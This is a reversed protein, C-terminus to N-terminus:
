LNDWPNGTDTKPAPATPVSWPSSSKPSKQQGARLRSRQLITKVNRSLADPEPESGYDKEPEDPGDVGEPRLAGRELAIRHALDDTHVTGFHADKDEDAVLAPPVGYHLLCLDLNNRWEEIGVANWYAVFFAKTQGNTYGRQIAEHHIEDLAAVRMPEMNPVTLVHVEPRVDKFADLGRMFDNEPTTPETFYTQVPEVAVTSQQNNPPIQVPTPTPVPIAPPAVVPIPALRPPQTVVVAPAPVSVPTPMTDMYRERVWTPLLAVATDYQQAPCQALSERWWPIKWGEPEQSFKQIDAKFQAFSYDKGHVEDMYKKRETYEKWDKENLVTKMGYYAHIEPPSMGKINKEIFELASMHEQRLKKGQDREYDAISQFLRTDVAGRIHLPVQELGALLADPKKSVAWYLDSAVLQALLEDESRAIPPSSSVRAVRKALVGPNFTRGMARSLEELPAVFADVDAVLHAFPQVADAYRVKPKPTPAGLMLPMSLNWVSRIEKPTPKYVPAEAPADRVETLPATPKWARAIYEGLVHVKATDSFQVLAQVSKAAHVFVKPEVYTIITDLMGWDKNLAYTIENAVLSVLAGHARNKMRLLRSAFVDWDWTRGTAQCLRAMADYVEDAQEVGAELVKTKGAPEVKVGLDRLLDATLDVVEPSPMQEVQNDIAGLEALLAATLEAGHQQAKEQKVTKRMADVLSHSRKIRENRHIRRKKRTQVEPDDKGVYSVGVHVTPRKAPDVESYAKETIRVNLGVGELASNVHRAWAERWQYLCPKKNWDRNKKGFAQPGIAEHETVIDRTTLMIHVHPNGVKDHIAYTACMGADTFQETIFGDLIQVWQERSLEIPLAAEVERFVQADDRTERQEVALWLAEPSKMWGPAHDPVLTKYEVVERTKYGYNFIQGYEPDSIQLAARYALARLAHLKPNDARGHIKTTLHYIAM